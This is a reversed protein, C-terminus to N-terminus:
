VNVGASTAAPVPAEVALAVPAPADAILRVPTLVMLYALILTMMSSLVGVGVALDVPWGVNYAIALVIFYITWPAAPVLAAFARFMRIREASPRLRLVLYDDM